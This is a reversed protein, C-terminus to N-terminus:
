VFHRLSCVPVYHAHRLRVLCQNLNQPSPLVDYTAGIMFRIRSAEMSWLDRWKINKKEVGEWNVWQGQKAQSVAKTRRVTEEQRHIEEVVM